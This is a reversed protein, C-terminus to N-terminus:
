TPALGAVWNGVSDPRTGCGLVGVHVSPSWDARQADGDNRADLLQLWYGPQKHLEGAAFGVAFCIAVPASHATDRIAGLMKFDHRWSKLQKGENGNKIAVKLEIAHWKAGSRQDDEVWLDIQKRTKGIERSASRRMDFRVKHECGIRNQKAHHTANTWPYLPPTEQKSLALALEWKAWGEFSNWFSSIRRLDELKSEQLLHECFVSVIKEPSFKM